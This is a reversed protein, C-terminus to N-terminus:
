LERKSREQMHLYSFVLCRMWAFFVFIWVLLLFWYVKLSFLAILSLIRSGLLLFLFLVLGGASFIVFNKLGRRMFSFLSSFVRGTYVFEYVTVLWWAIGLALLVLIIISNVPDTTIIAIIWLLLVLSLGVFVGILTSKFTSKIPPLSAQSREQRAIDHVVMAGARVQFYSLTMLPLLVTALAAFILSAIWRFLSWKISTIQEKFAIVQSPNASIQQAMDFALKATPTFNFYVSKVAFLGVFLLIGSLVIGTVDFLFVSFIKKTYVVHWSRGMLMSISRWRPMPLRRRQDHRKKKM